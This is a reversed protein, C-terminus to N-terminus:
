KESKVKLLGIIKARSVDETVESIKHIGHEDDLGVKMKKIKEVENNKKDECDENKSWSNDLEKSM